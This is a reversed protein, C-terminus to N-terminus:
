CVMSHTGVYVLLVSEVRVKSFKNLDKSAKPHVAYSIVPEPVFMSTMALNNGDTFTDGSSCDVGFMAVIEGAFLICILPCYLTTLRTMIKGAQAEDIDEMEDSHLKVVRPVKVRSKHDDINYIFEGRKFSGQYLRLYTLQGFRSEELKFALAVLPDTASTRLVVEKENDDRDLAINPVETPNPLYDVVGDLLLQVGKNKFASGVFVPVFNLAITAKRIADAMAEPDPTEEMLYLEEIQTLLPRPTHTLRQTTPTHTNHPPPLVYMRMLRLWGSLSNMVVSLSLMGTYVGLGLSCYQTVHYNAGGPRSSIMQCM